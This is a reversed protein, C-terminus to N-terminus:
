RGSEKLIQGLIEGEAKVHRRISIFFSRLLYGIADWSLYCRETNLDLLTDVVEQAADADYQRGTRRRGTAEALEDGSMILDLRSSIVQEELRHTTRLLPVLGSIITECLREDVRHPLCDAIEELRDCWAFLQGYCAELEALADSVTKTM